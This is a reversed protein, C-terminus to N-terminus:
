PTIEFVVGGGGGGYTGTGYLNGANDPTLRSTPEGGDSGGSFQYLVTEAFNATPDLEYIVGMGSGGSEADGYIEGNSGILVAEPDLGNGGNFYHLHTFTWVGNSKETMRYVVGCGFPCDTTKNGGNASGYLNGASDFTLGLPQEGDVTGTFRHPFTMTWGGKGNPSLEFIAGCGQGNCATGGGGYAATGFVNSNHFVVGDSPYSGDEGGIFSHVVTEQWTAGSKPTLEFITGLNPTGGKNTVGFLNGNADFALTGSPRIGDKSGQGFTYLLSFSWSGDPNPSLRYATGYGTGGYYNGYTTGYLNGASDFILRSNPHTGDSEGTFTYITNETWDGNGSPTLKYVLGCGHGECAPTGGYFTTGYLNGANDFIVGGEPLDGDKVNFSYLVNETAYSSVSLLVFAVIALPSMRKELRFM